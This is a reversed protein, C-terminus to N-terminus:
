QIALQQSFNSKIQEINIHSYVYCFNRIIFENDLEKWNMVCDPGFNDDYYTNIYKILEFTNKQIIDIVQDIKNNEIIFKVFDYKGEKWNNSAEFLFTEYWWNSIIFNNDISKDSSFVMDKFTHILYMNCVDALEPNMLNLLVLM